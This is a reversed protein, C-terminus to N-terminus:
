SGPDPSASRVVISYAKTAVQGPRNTGFCAARISFGFTGSQTPTGALVGAADVPRHELALGPPLEGQEVEMAAVPTENGSVAIAVSYPQGLEAIPLVDPSFVLEPRAVERGGCAAALLTLVALRLSM